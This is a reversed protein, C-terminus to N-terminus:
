SVSGTVERKRSMYEKVFIVVFYVFYFKLVRGNGAIFDNNTPDCTM